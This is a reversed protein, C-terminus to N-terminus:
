TGTLQLQKRDRWSSPAKVLGASKFFVVYLVKEIACQTKVVITKLGNEFVWVKSTQDTSIDFLPM